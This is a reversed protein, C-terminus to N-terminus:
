GFIGIQRAYRLLAPSREGELLFRRVKQDNWNGEKIRIKIGEENHKLTVLRAFRLEIGDLFGSLDEPDSEKLDPLPDDIPIVASDFFDGSIMAETLKTKGAGEILNPVRSYSRWLLILDEIAELVGTGFHNQSKRLNETIGDLISVWFTWYEGFCRSSILDLSEKIILGKLSERLRDNSMRMRWLRDLEEQRERRYDEIMGKLERALRISERDKFYAEPDNLIRCMREFSAQWPLIPTPLEHIKYLRPPRGSKKEVRMGVKKKVLRPIEGKRVWVYNDGVEYSEHHWYRSSVDEDAFIGWIKDKKLGTAGSLEDATLDRGLLPSLIHYAMRLTLIHKTRIARGEGKEVRKKLDCTSEYFERAHSFYRNIQGILEM